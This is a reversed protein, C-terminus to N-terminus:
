AGARRAVRYDLLNLWHYIRWRAREILGSHAAYWEDDILRSAQEFDDLSLDRTRKSLKKHKPKEFDLTNPAPGKLTSSGGGM